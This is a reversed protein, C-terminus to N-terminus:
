LDYEANIGVMQRYATIRKYLGDPIDAVYQRELEGEKAVTAHEAGEQNSMVQALECILGDIREGVDKKRHTIDLFMDLADDLLAELYDDPKGMVTRKKKLRAMRRTMAEADM